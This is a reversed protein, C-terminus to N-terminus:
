KTVKHKSKITDTKIVIATDKLTKVYTTTDYTITRITDIKITVTTDAKIVKITETKAPKGTEAKVAAKIPEAAYSMLVLSLVASLMLKFM